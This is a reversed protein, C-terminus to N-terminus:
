DGLMDLLERAAQKLRQASGATAGIYAVAADLELPSFGRYSDVNFWNLATVIGRIVRSPTLVAVRAACGSTVENLRSRQAATPGDSREWVLVRVTLGLQCEPALWDLYTAWDIDSPPRRGSAYVCYDSVKTWAATGGSGMHLHLRDNRGGTHMSKDTEKEVWRSGSRKFDHTQVSAIEMTTATESVMAPVADLRRLSIGTVTGTQRIDAPDRADMRRPARSTSWFHSLDSLDEFRWRPYEHMLFREQESLAAAMAQADAYRDSPNKSLCKAVVTWISPPFGAFVDTLPYPPDELHFQAMVDDTPWVDPANTFPHQGALAEYACIGLAYLDTRPDAPKRLIQEPAM